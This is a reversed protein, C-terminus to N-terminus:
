NPRTGEIWFGVRTHREFNVLERCNAHFAWLAGIGLAFGIEGEINVVAGLDGNVDIATFFDPAVPHAQFVSNRDLLPWLDDFSFIDERSFLVWM